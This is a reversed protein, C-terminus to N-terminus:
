PVGEMVTETPKQSAKDASAGMEKNRNREPKELLKVKGETM